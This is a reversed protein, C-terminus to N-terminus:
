PRGVSANLSKASARHNAYWESVERIAIDVAGKAVTADPTSFAVHDRIERGPHVLNRYQKAAHSLRDHKLIQTPLAANILENLTRKTAEELGWKGFTVLADLLLGEIIAGSLILVCKPATELNLRQLEAYDREVVVRLEGNNMFTFDTKKATPEPIASVVSVAHRRQVTAIKIEQLMDFTLQRGRVEVQSTIPHVEAASYGTSQALSSALGRVRALEKEWIENWKRKLWEERLATIGLDTKQTPEIYSQTFAAPLTKLRDFVSDGVSRVFSSSRAMGKLGFEERLNPIGKSILDDYVHKSSREFLLDGLEELNASEQAAVRGLQTLKLGSADIWTDGNRLHKCDVLQEEYLARISLLWQEKSFNGCSNLSEAITSFPLEQPYSANLVRLVKEALETNYATMHTM